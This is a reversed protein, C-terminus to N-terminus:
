VEVNVLNDSAYERPLADADEGIADAQSSDDGDLEDGGTESNDALERDFSSSDSRLNFSLSGTDTKM